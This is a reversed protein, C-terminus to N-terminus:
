IKVLTEELNYVLHIVSMLAALETPKVDNALPYEGVSIFKKAEAPKDTFRQLEDQFYDALVEKEKPSPHRCLTRLFVEDLIFDMSDIRSNQLLTQAMVRSCELVIPDNMMVLAQLPTNTKARELECLDRNSGDFILMNPPPVTLKIFIYLGRRYLQSGHDQVYNKLSGRGSSTVEWIGDPQYPKYSPGGIERNLLGSSALLRDRIIEATLRTRSSRSLYINDPDHKLKKNDMTSSQRYTASMVLRKLYQKVDWGSEMFDVALHDLLQPHSPLEGQNGFDEVSAVIGRGFIKGWIHNVFVRATLPNDKSVTWEALGLRDARYESLDFPMISEPTGPNVKKGHQDYLGRDLIYTQRISDKLDEMVSLMIGNTDPANIFDVLSDRQGQTITIYPIKGPLSNDVTAEIGVEPTNNFFSYLQYYDEQSFPDYKHDHCQACEMTIGLISTSYTNTKDIVYTVRYEEPIVGGEETIKHNRNFATAIRQELTPDPFLDGALQWTIFNDYSMNENFAHIVWDRWPWQSRMEDDQYGYSDAYRAADMWHLAMKEGYAPRSLLDDVLAEYKTDSWDTSYKEIDEVSPPLGNLDLFLRNILVMSEAEPNPKLGVENMKDLVFVDVNNRVWKHDKTSPLEQKEPKIFAWHSEYEGGQEIWKRLVKKEYDSLVLGSEAPPMVVSIDAAEIRRILESQEPDGAVIAFHGPNEKLAAFADEEIDLRLSAERANEDPGHCAFCRDSLIPKVHFNFDVKKPVKFNQGLAVENKNEGCGAILVGVCLGIKLINRVM